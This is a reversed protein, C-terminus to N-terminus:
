FYSASSLSTMAAPIQPYSDDVIERVRSCQVSKQEEVQSRM